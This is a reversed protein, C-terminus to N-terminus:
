KNYKIRWYELIIRESFNASYIFNALLPLVAAVPMGKFKYEIWNKSTFEEVNTNLSIQKSLNKKYKVDVFDLIKANVSDIKHKLQEGRKEVIFFNNTVNKDSYLVPRGNKGIGGARKIFEDNLLTIYQKFDVVIRNLEMVQTKFSDPQKLLEDRIIANSVEIDVYSNAIKKQVLESLVEQNEQENQSFACSSLLLFFLIYINKM